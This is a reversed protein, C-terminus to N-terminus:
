RLRWSLAVFGLNQSARYRNAGSGFFSAFRAGLGVRLRQDFFGYLHNWSLAGTYCSPSRRRPHRRDSM